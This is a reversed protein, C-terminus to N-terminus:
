KGRKINKNRTVHALYLQVYEAKWDVDFQVITDYTTDYESDIETV